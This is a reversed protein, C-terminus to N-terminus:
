ETRGVLVNANRLTTLIGFYPEYRGQMSRIQSKRGMDVELTEGESKGRYPSHQRMEVLRNQRVLGPCHADTLKRVFSASIAAGAEGKEM